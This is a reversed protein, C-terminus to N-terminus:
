HRLLGDGDEDDMVRVLSAVIGGAAMLLTLVILPLRWWMELAGVGAILATLVAAARSMPVLMSSGTRTAPRVEPM